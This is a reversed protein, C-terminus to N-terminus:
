KRPEEALRSLAERAETVLPQLVADAGSWADVVTAYAEVATEINGLREHVRGRELEALVYDASPGFQTAFALNDLLEAAAADEGRRSLIQARTLQEYYGWYTYPWPRVQGLYELAASTDGEALARYGRASSRRTEWLGLPPTEQQVRSDWLQEARRLSATDGVAAWWRHGNYIAFTELSDFWTEFQRSADGAPVAGLLALVGYLPPLTQDGAVEHAERLRGRVARALAFSQRAGPNDPNSEVWSEAVHAGTQAPDLWWKVDYWVQAFGESSLAELQAQTEPAAARSPDLLAVSVAEADRYRGPGARRVYEQAAHRAGELDGAVLSLEVLHRYAPVFSSDLELTRDFAAKAGDRSTGLTAGFHYRVEGLTYWAQPDTPYQLTAANLTQFIRGLRAWDLDTGAFRPPTLSGWLSDAVLLLSERRALGHNLAGARLMAPVSEEDFDMSWGTTQALRSHALAFGSDAAISRRYYLTASDLSFRRYHQEGELFAKLAVPSSSGLSLPRWGSIGRTRSLESIVGVVLSDALRDVRDAQDRLEFEAMPRRAGVDLLTAVVRASDSGASVVRGFLVLGAGLDAGAKAATVPDARGDWQRIVTSPPVSRLPGAGDLPGSLLDVLGERWTALDPGLVDFPVVAILDPDLAPGSRWQIAVTVAAAVVVVAAAVAALPRWRIPPKPPRVPDPPTPVVIRGETAGGIAVMFEDASAFRAEPDQALTRVLLREVPDPLSDLQEREEPKADAVRGTDLSKRDLWREPPKGVLMEYLVCGLSYLDSRGDLSRAGAAQEPSMYGLTGLPFGSTTLGSGVAANLARAIGFDAVVAMGGSFLINEPKIDRHVIGQRHAYSLATAVQLTIQLAEDVPIRSEDNLRRRLSRGDIFPMTFYLLGDAQGSDYVPVIHPHSLKAAIEIETLFRGSGLAAALDPRLVKLAVQRGHKVDQALYVTAMGGRGLERELTYRDALAARLVNMAESM